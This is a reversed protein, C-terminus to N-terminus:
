IPTNEPPNEAAPSLRRAETLYRRVENRFEGLRAPVNEKVANRIHPRWSERKDDSHGTRVGGCRSWFLAAAERAQENRPSPYKGRLCKWAEAIIVACFVHSSFADSLMARGRGPRAKGRATTIDSSLIAQDACLALLAVNSQFRNRNEIQALGGAELFDVIDGDDLERVLLRAAAAAKELRSKIEKRTPTIKDVQISNFLCIAYDFFYKHMWPSSNGGDILRAVHSYDVTEPNPPMLSSPM